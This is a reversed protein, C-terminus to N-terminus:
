EIVESQCYIDKAEDFGVWNDVGAAELALTWAEADLLKLYMRKTITVEEEM